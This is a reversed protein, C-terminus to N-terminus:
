KVLMMQKSATYEGASIRYYYVGSPLSLAEWKIEKYGAEQVEDVLTAVEKGLVDFIKLTVKSQRPLAYHITTSPNFPNPFNQELQYQTPKSEKINVRLALSQLPGNLRIAGLEGLQLPRGNVVLECTPIDLAPQWLLTLPYRPNSVVIPFENISGAEYLELMRGSAYRVDFSNGPPQPPLEFAPLFLNTTHLSGVYLRQLEGTANTMTLQGLRGPLLKNQKSLVAPGATSQLFLTGDGSVKVWYAKAPELLTVPEYGGGAQYGYYETIVSTGWGQVVSSTTIPAALSGILNWRDHVPVTISDLPTGRMAIRSGGDSRVWYGTGPTLSDTSGYGAPLVFPHATVSSSPINKRVSYDGDHPVYPLSVLHWGSTDFQDIVPRLKICSNIRPRTETPHSFRNLFLWAPEAGATGNPKGQMGVISVSDIANVGLNDWQYEITGDCRNLIVRFTTEDPGPGSASFSGVSDWEVIFQCPNGNDGYIIRGYQTAPSDASIIHDAWLPAIFMPPIGELNSIDTRGNHVPSYPFDWESTALGNSNVDQTDTATSTLSIGGNIGVWAYRFTDGFVIFEGGLDFPGATGDDKREANPSATPPLFYQSTDIVTGTARISQQICPGTTDVTYWENGFPAIRFCIPRSKSTDGDLDIAVVRYCVTSGSSQTPLLGMWIDAGQDTMPVDPQGLGNVTYRLFANMIGAQGPHERNCDTLYSHIPFPGNKFTTFVNEVDEIIPPVNSEVNMVYWFNYAAVELTDTGFPGRAVWGKKISDIPFGACNSPGKDHEYFKWNRSPYDEDATTVRFGSADWETRQEELHWSSYMRYNVRMSIFFKDGIEVHITDLLDSMAVFSVTNPHIVKPYGGAGWLEEAIPPVSPVPSGNITSIWNTDTAEERFAAVGQDLDNTNVWYGWNQCPPNYPGPRVGPGFDPGIISRHVRIFITSDYSGISARNRWFITDITGAAKAVYWQGLVDKHYAGFNSNTPYIEPSYGFTFKDTCTSGSPRLSTRKRVVEAASEQPTLPIVEQQPSVLYRKQASVTPPSCFVVIVFVFFIKM